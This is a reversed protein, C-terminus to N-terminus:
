RRFQASVRLTNPKISNNPAARFQCVQRAETQYPRWNTDRVQLKFLLRSDPGPWRSTSVTFEARDGPGLRVEHTPPMSHELIVEWPSFDQSPSEAALVDFADPFLKYPPGSAGYTNFAVKQNSNNTISILTDYGVLPSLCPAPAPEVLVGILPYSPTHACSTLALLSALLIPRMRRVNSNVRPRGVAFGATSRRTCRLNPRM